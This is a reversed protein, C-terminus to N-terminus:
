GCCATLALTVRAAGQTLAGVPGNIQLSTGDFRRSRSFSVRLSRGTAGSGASSWSREFHACCKDGAAGAKQARVEAIVQDRAAVPDDADVAELCSAELVHLVEAAVREREQIVVDGSMDLDCLRDIEDEVQRARCARDVVRTQRQLSELDARVAGVVREPERLELAG